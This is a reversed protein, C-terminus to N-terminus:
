VKIGSRMQRLEDVANKELMKVKRAENWRKFYDLWIMSFYGFLPLTAILIFVWKNAWIWSIILLTLYYLPYSFTSITFRVSAHFKIQKINKDVYAKCLRIPLFNGIIGILFPLLGILLTLTLPVNFYHSQALGIDKIGLKKLKGFYQDVKTRLAAKANTELVNFRDILAVFEPLRSPQYSLAPLPKEMQNNETIKLLQNALKDDEEKAIHIVRKQLEEGIRDTLQKIAKRPNERHSEYFQSLLIPTGFDGFIMSRFEHSNTYNIGVPVIAIDKRGYKEYAGFAMRATGKQIPRLRKEHKSEGEALILLNEEKNLLEYCYELIGENKKLNAIGDQRRYIPICKVSWLFKEVLWGNKFMDGRLIFNRGHLSAAGILIPELFATPHNVALILPQNDPLKDLGTFYIKSFFIRGYLSVFPRVIYYLM